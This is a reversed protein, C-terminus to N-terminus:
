FGTLEEQSVEKTSELPHRLICHHYGCLLKLVLTGGLYSEIDMNM